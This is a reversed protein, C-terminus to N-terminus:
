KMPYVHGQKSQLSLPFHQKKVLPRRRVGVTSPHCFTVKEWTQLCLVSVAAPVLLPLHEAGYNSPRAHLRSLGSPSWLSHQSTVQPTIPLLSM